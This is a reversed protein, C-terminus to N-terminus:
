YGYVERWEQAFTRLEDNFLFEPDSYMNVSPALSFSVITFGDIFLLENLGYYNLPHPEVGQPVIVQSPSTLLFEDSLAVLLNMQSQYAAFSQHIYRTPEKGRACYGKFWALYDALTAQRFTGQLAVELLEARASFGKYM